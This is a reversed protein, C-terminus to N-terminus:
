TSLANQQLWRLRYESRSIFEVNDPTLNRKDGDKYWACLPSYLPINFLFFVLSRMGGNNYVTLRMSTRHITLHGLKGVQEATLRVLTGDKLHVTCIKSM